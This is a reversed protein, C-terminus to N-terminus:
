FEREELIDIKNQKLENTKWLEDNAEKLQKIKEQAKSLEETLSMESGLAARLLGELNYHKAKLREVESIIPMISNASEAIFQIDTSICLHLMDGVTWKHDRKMLYSEAGKVREIRQDIDSM